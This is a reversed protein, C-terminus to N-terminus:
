SNLSIRCLSSSWWWPQTSIGPGGPEVFGEDSLVVVCEPLTVFTHMHLRFYSHVCVSAPACTSEVSVSLWNTCLRTVHVHFWVCVLLLGSWCWCAHSCKYLPVLKAWHNMPWRAGAAGGDTRGDTQEDTQWHLSPDSRRGTGLQASLGLPSWTLASRCHQFM